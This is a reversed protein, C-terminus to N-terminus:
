AIQFQPKFVRSRERVRTFFHSAQGSVASYIVPEAVGGFL